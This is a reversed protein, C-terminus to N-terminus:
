QAGDMNKINARAKSWLLADSDTRSVTALPYDGLFLSKDKGDVTIVLRPRENEITEGTTKNQYTVRFPKVVSTM